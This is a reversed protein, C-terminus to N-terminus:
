ARRRLLSGRDIQEVGFDLADGTNLRTPHLRGRRLGVGGAIEMWGRRRVLGLSVLVLRDGGIGEIVQWLQQPTATTLQQQNDQYVLHGAWQPDSSASRESRRSRLLEAAPKVEGDWLEARWRWAFRNGTYVAWADGPPEIYQHIGTRRGRLEQQLSGILPM